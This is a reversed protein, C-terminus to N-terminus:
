RTAPTATPWSRVDLLEPRPLRGAHHVPVQIGMSGLEKQFKAITADDTSSGTSRRRATTPWCSTPSSRSSARPSSAALELDPTGTEMWIMDAYPAYAKARAICPEPRQPRPLLGRVHARRHRVAPRARRRRLHDPPRRPTPRAIVVTPVDAVDAASPCPGPASTSSPPSSCRAAPHGCKKESALQDEWHSGGVGAAIMAKQLEYVNLAGGFGPRATPSSRCWGTTSRPTAGVKAIEDARLLANNIRRVVQPM